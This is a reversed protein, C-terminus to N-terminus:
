REAQRQRERRGRHCRGRECLLLWGRRTLWRWWRGILWRRRQETAHGDTQIDGADARVGLDHREPFIVLQGRGASGSEESSGTRPASESAM